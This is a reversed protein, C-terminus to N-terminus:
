IEEQAKHSNSACKAVRKFKGEKCKTEPLNLERQMENIEDEAEQTWCEVIVYANSNFGVLAPLKFGAKRAKEKAEEYTKGKVTRESM